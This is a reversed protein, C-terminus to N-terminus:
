KQPKISSKLANKYADLQALNQRMSIKEEEPSREPGFYVNVTEGSLENEGGEHTGLDINLFAQQISALSPTIQLWHGMGAPLAPDFKYDSHSFLRIGSYPIGLTFRHVIGGEVTWGASKFIDIYQAAYICVVEDATPCSLTVTRSSGELDALGKKFKDQESPELIHRGNVKLLPISKMRLPKPAVPRAIQKPAPAPPSSKGPESPQAELPKTTQTTTDEHMPGHSRAWGDLKILAFAWVICVVVGVVIKIALDQKWLWESFIVGGVGLIFVLILFLRGLGVDIVGYFTLSAILCTLLLILIASGAIRKLLTHPDRKPNPPEPQPSFLDIFEAAM